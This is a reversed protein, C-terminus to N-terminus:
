PWRWRSGQGTGNMASASSPRATFGCGSCWRCPPSARTRSPLNFGAQLAKEDGAAGKGSSASAFAPHLTIDDLSSAEGAAADALRLGFLDSLTRPDERQALVEAFTRAAVQEWADLLEAKEAQPLTNGAIIREGEAAIEEFREPAAGIDALLRKQMADVNTRTWGHRARVEETAASALRREHEAALREDAAPRDEARLAALTKAKLVELRGALLGTLGDGSPGAEARAEEAAADAALRADHLGLEVAFTRHELERKQVHAQLRSEDYSHAGGRTQIRTQTQAGTRTQRQAPMQRGAQRALRAGAAPFASGPRTFNRGIGDDSHAEPPSATDLRTRAVYDPIRFM